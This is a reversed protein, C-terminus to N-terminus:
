IKNLSWQRTHYGVRIRIISFRDLGTKSKPPGKKNRSLHIRPNTIIIIIIICSFLTLSISTSAKTPSSSPIQIRLPDKWKSRQVADQIQAGTIVETYTCNFFFFFFLNLNIKTIKLLCFFSYIIYIYRINQEKHM